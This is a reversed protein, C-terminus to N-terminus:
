DVYLFANSNLLVHCFDALAARRPDVKGGARAAPRIDLGGGTSNRFVDPKAEFQWYGITARNVGEVTYLLREAELAADSLRVDDLLGDFLADASKEGGRGGLTLPLRNQLGGTVTHPVRATLLPEDDNSLDKAYFTATGPQGNAALKVSVAVYYPKNLQISQDSFLAEEGTTGDLRRGGLCSLRRWPSTTSRCGTM